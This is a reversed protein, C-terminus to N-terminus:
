AESGPNAIAGDAIVTVTSPFRVAEPAAPGIPLVVTVHIEGDIREIAGRLMAHFRRADQVTAGDPISSFDISTDGIILLEGSKRITLSAESRQPSFSIRM